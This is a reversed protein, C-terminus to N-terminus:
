SESFLLKKQFLLWSCKGQLKHPRKVIYCLWPAKHIFAKGHSDSNYNNRPSYYWLSMTRDDHNSRDCTERISFLNSNILASSMHNLLTPVVCASASGWLRPLKQKGSSKWSSHFGFFYYIVSFFPPSLFCLFFCANIDARWQIPVMWARSEDNLWDGAPPQAWHAAAFLHSKWLFLLPTNLFISQRIWTQTDVFLFVNWTNMRM